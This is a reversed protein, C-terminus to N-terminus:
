HPKRVIGRETREVVGEDQLEALIRSLSPRAVGLVEATEGVRVVMDGEKYAKRRYPWRTLEKLTEESCEAFLPLRQLEKIMVPSKAIAAFILIRQNGVVVCYGVILSILRIFIGFYLSKVPPLVVTEKCCIKTM